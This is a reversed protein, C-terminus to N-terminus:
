RPGVRGEKDSELPDRQVSTIGSVQDFDFTKEFQKKKLVLVIQALVVSGLFFLLGQVRLPDQFVIEADGQRENSADVITIEYGGKEMFNQKNDRRIEVVTKFDTELSRQIYNFFDYPMEESGSGPCFHAKMSWTM